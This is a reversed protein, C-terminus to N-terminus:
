STIEASEDYTIGDKSSSGDSSYRTVYKHGNGDHYIVIKSGTDGGPWTETWGKNVVKEKITLKQTATTGTYNDNGNFTANIQYKGKKLNLILKSKGKSNTKITKNMVVKDKKNTILINVKENSIATKNLNTLQISLKGGKYLTKNSIIKINSAEKVKTPEEVQPSDNLNTIYFFTGAVLAIVIILTVAIIIINKNEM